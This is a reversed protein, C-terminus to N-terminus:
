APHIQVDSLEPGANSLRFERQVRGREYYLSVLLRHTGSPVRWKPNQWDAFGYSENGFIHIDQQQDFKILLSMQQDEHSHIDIKRGTLIKAPDLLHVQATLIMSPTLPEPLSTWRAVIPPTVLPTGGQTMLEITAKVSWAPRRSLFRWRARRNRVLLHYFELTKGDPQQRRVRGQPDVMIELDPRTAHDLVIAAIASAFIGLVFGLAIEMM